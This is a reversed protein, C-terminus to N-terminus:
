RVTVVTLRMRLTSRIHINTRTMKLKNGKSSLGMFARSMKRVSGTMKGTRRIQSRNPRDSERGMSMGNKM